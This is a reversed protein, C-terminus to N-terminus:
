KEKVLTVELQEYPIRIQNEDFAIKIQENLLWKAKWYEETTVYFRVGMKISSEGFSDVFVDLDRTKDYYPNERVVQTLIEKVKRLDSDYSVGISVDLKRIGAATVNILSHATINGNPIVIIRNDYTMLKTYFIDIATVTGECQKDNEIIYDGVKFPKLILILVGGAFNALSGQLALGIALSATGLITVLSTVQFGVISAATIFVIAYLGFKILSLLFSAVSEELNSKHFSKHIMKVILRSLKVGLYMCIIALILQFGKNLAWDGLERLYAELKSPEMNQIDELNSGGKIRLYM